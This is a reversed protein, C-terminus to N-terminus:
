NLAKSNQSNNRKKSLLYIIGLTAGYFSIELATPNDIYGTFTNLVSGLFSNQSILWSSNWLPNQYIPIIESSALLNAAQSAMGAAILSLMISTVKFLYKGSISIIGRYLFIGTIIATISGLIGGIFLSYASDNSATIIGYSFMVIESGERLIAMATIISISFLSINDSDICNSLKSKTDRHANQMWVVTWIIMSASILLITANSIEQGYGDFSEFIYNACAAIIISGFIGAVIGSNIYLFRNKVGETAASIIGLLLSVELIERFFIIFLKLM